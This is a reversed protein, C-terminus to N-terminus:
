AKGARKSRRNEAYCLVAVLVFLFVAWPRLGQLGASQAIQTWQYRMEVVEPLGFLCRSNDAERKALAPEPTSRSAERAEAYTTSNHFVSLSQEPIPQSCADAYASPTM